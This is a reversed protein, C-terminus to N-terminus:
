WQAFIPQFRCKSVTTEIIHL